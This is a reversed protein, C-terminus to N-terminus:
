KGIEQHPQSPPPPGGFPAPPHKKIDNARAIIYARLARTDVPKLAEAFSAMGRQALVGKLVIQDFGEQSHLLPTRTLDPFNAGRTEGQDGHCAACYQEYRKAGTQVVAPAATDPPPDLPPPTYPQAPPLVAKGGLAFVLM